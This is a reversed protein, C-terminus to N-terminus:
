PTTVQRIAPIEARSGDDRTQAALASKRVILICDSLGMDVRGFSLLRSIAGLCGFWANWGRGRKRLALQVPGEYIEEYLVELGARRVLAKARHLAIERRFPTPFQDLDVTRRRDHLLHRYFWAHFGFPTLRTVLGKLSWYNPFALLVIGGPRLGEFMKTLAQSPHDLHEIVDWCVILDFSGPAWSHQELNGVIRVDLSPHRMLQRESIDVGVLTRRAPLRIRSTSGCGAELIRPQEIGSLIEDLVAQIRATPDGHRGRLSTMEV